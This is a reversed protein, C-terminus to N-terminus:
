IIIFEWNDWPIKKKQGGWHSLMFIRKWCTFNERFFIAEFESTYVSAIEHQWLAEM